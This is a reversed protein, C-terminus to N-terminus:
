PDGDARKPDLAFLKFEPQLNVRTYTHTNETGIVHFEFADFWM